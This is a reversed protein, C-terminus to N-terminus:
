LLVFGRLAVWVASNEWEEKVSLCFNGDFLELDCASYSKNLVGSKCPVRCPVLRELEQVIICPLRNPDTSAMFAIFESM